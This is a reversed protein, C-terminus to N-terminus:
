ELLKPPIAARQDLSKILRDLGPFYPVEDRYEHLIPTARAAMNEAGAQNSEALHLYYGAARIMAQLILKRTGPAEKWLPELAAHTEFFLEHDWLVLAQQFPDSIKGTNITSKAAAYRHQRDIIYDAYVEQPHKLLLQEALEAVPGLDFGPDLCKVLTEALRNRIERAAHDNRPDFSTSNNM